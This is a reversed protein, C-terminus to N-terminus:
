RRETEKIKMCHNVPNLPYNFKSYNTL